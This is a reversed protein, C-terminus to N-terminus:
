WLARVPTAPPVEVAAPMPEAMPQPAPRVMPQPAPTVPRVTEETTTTTTTTTVSPITTTTTTATMEVEKPAIAVDVVRGNRRIAMIEMGPVLGLIGREKQNLRLTETEGDVTELTIVDGVISKITGRVREDVETQAMLTGSTEEVPNAMAPAISVASLMLLVATGAMVKINKM